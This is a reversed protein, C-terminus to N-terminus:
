ASVTGTRSPVLRPTIFNRGSPWVPRSSDQSLKPADDSPGPIGSRDVEVLRMRDTWTARSRPMFKM